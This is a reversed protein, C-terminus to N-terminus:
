FFEISENSENIIEVKNRVWTMHGSWAFWRSWIDVTSIGVYLVGGFGNKMVYLGYNKEDYKQEHFNWFTLEIM